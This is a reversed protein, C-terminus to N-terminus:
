PKRCPPMSFMNKPVLQAIAPILLKMKLSMFHPARGKTASARGHQRGDCPWSFLILIGFFFNPLVQHVIYLYLWVQKQKSRKAENQKTRRARVQKKITNALKKECYGADPLLLSAQPMKVMGKSAKAQKQWCFCCAQPM